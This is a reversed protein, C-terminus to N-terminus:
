RSNGAWEDNKLDNWVPTPWLWGTKIPEPTKLPGRCFQVSKVVDSSKLGAKDAVSNPVVEAIVTEVRYALGLGPISLPARTSLQVERSYDWGDDWQLGVEASTNEAHGSPRLVSLKVTKPSAATKAWQQLEYPLRMPDLTREEVDPQPKTSHSTVFRIVGGDPKAVEVQKIVDGRESSRPRVGAKAAPSGDRVAVVQGMGMIMGLDRYYEPPVTVESTKHTRNNEVKLTMPKGALDVQRRYLEFYDRQEHRPNRPDMPLDKLTSPNAPDTTAIVEDGTQLAKADILSAASGQIVPPDSKRPIGRLTPKNAMGVGILPMGAGDSDYKPEIATHVPPSGPMEFTIPVKQGESSLVIEPKVDDFFPNKISGVQQLVAGSRLGLQWAPSGAEVVGIVGAPRDEGTTMYVSVFGIVALIMNMIVGASIIMMRQGVPKNKYSRPDEEGDEGDTGEGVMKVYGGLPIMGVKYTTEGWKFECGPLSPGFGISFAEVHM